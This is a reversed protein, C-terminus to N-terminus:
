KPCRASIYSSVLIFARADSKRKEILQMVTSLFAQQILCAYIKFVFGDEMEVSAVVGDESRRDVEYKQINPLKLFENEVCEMGKRADSKM